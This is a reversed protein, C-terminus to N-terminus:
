VKWKRPTRKIAWFVVAVAGAKGALQAWSAHFSDAIGILLGACAGAGIVMMVGRITIRGPPPPKDAAAAALEKEINM